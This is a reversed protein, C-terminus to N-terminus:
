IRIAGCWFPASFMGHANPYDKPTMVDPHADIWLVGLKGGYRTSLYAIPALDVLCDGGLTVIRAPGHKEIVRRAERLLRLVVSRGAMGNELALTGGPAPEPIAVTEVPGEAAPALWALLQAGFHYEPRNGGHWLPLNLRLTSGSRLSL